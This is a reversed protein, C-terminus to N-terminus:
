PSEPFRRSKALRREGAFSLLVLAGLAYTTATVFAPRVHAEGEMFLAATMPGLASGLLQLAPVHVALSGAPEAALALKVHFPMMYLWLFGFVACTVVFWVLNGAPLLLYAAGVLLLGVHCALLTPRPALRPSLWAACAGGAIQTLLVSTITLQVPRAPLLAERGLAELFTWSAGIVAMDFAISLASTVIRRNLKPLGHETSAHPPLQKPLWALAPLPLLSFLALGIFGGALGAAPIVWMALTFAAAAQGCSQLLLFVGALREPASFRVIAQTALWVLVGGSLGTVIRALYLAAESPASATLVNATALLLTALATTIRLGREPLLLNAAAAGVGIAVIEAMALLGAGDLTTRGALILQELLIPQLGLMLLGSTGFLVAALDARWQPQSAAVHQADDM